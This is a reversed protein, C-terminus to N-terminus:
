TNIGNIPLVAGILGAAVGAFITAPLVEFSCTIQRGNGLTQRMPEDGCKAGTSISIQAGNIVPHTLNDL